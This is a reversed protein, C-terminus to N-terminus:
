GVTIPALMGTLFHPLHTQADAVFCVLLYQGPQLNADFVQHEGPGIASVGGAGVYPPPGAPASGPPAKLAAEVDAITKGPAPALIQMQHADDTSRNVVDISGSWDVDVPVEFSNDVLTVTSKATPAPVSARRDRVTFHGVMGHAWHPKGDAGQVNCIVMYTAGPKLDVVTSAPRSGSVAAPGGVSDALAAVAGEGGPGQLASTFQAPTVGSHLRFLNAEHPMTPDQNVLKVTVWGAPAKAKPLEFRMAGTADIEYVPRTASAHKAAKPSRAHAPKSATAASASGGFTGVALVLGVATAASGLTLRAGPRIGDIRRRQMIEETEKVHVDRSTRQYTPSRDVDITPSVAPICM